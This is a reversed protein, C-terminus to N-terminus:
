FLLDGLLLGGALAGLLPVANSRNQRQPPYDDYYGGGYGGGYGSGGYGPGYGAYPDGPPPGYRQQQRYSGGAYQSQDYSAREQAYREREQAYRAQDKMYQERQARM